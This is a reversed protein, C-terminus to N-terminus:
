LALGVVLVTACVACFIAFTATQYLSRRILGPQPAPKKELSLIKKYADAWDWHDGDMMLIKCAWRLETENWQHQSHLMARAIEVADQRDALRDRMSDTLPFNVATM